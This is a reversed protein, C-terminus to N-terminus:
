HLEGHRRLYQLMLRERLLRGPDDPVQQLLYADATAHAGDAGEDAATLAPTTGDEHAPPAEGGVGLAGIGGRGTKAGLAGTPVENAPPNLPPSRDSPAAASEQATRVDLRAERAPVAQQVAATTADTEDSQGAAAGIASTSAGSGAPVQLTAVSDGGGAAQAGGAAGLGGAGNGAGRDDRGQRAAADGGAAARVEAPSEMLDLVLRRNHRADAHEPQLALAADYEGVADEFRGLHALVNGRNYHAEAGTEGSLAALAGAYDGARYHLAARWRSGDVRALASALRGADADLLARQEPRLWLDEWFGAQVPVPPLSLVALPVVALWGRRFVVAALPLLLLLLWPGDDRWQRELSVREGDTASAGGPQLALLRATDLDDARSATVIGTGARAVADLARGQALALVSVRHGADALAAAAARAGEAPAAADTILIVDAAAVASRRLLRGALQLALDTRREGVVPMVAPELLPVQEQITGADTTLPAILFPEAGFAILAFQGEEAGRLLDMVEFRARALRSPAIDAAQMSPSLDLLLVRPQEIRFVPREALRWAPGALALVVLLWGLGLAALLPGARGGGAATLVFPRLRADVLAEWQRGRRVRLTLWLLALGLLPLLALWGPRLWHVDLLM